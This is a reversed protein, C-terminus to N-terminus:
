HHSENPGPPIPVSSHEGGQPGPPTGSDGRCGLPVSLHSCLCPPHQLGSLAVLYPGDRPLGYWRTGLLPDPVRPKFNLSMEMSNISVNINM